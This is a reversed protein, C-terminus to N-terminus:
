CPAEVSLELSFTVAGKGARNVALTFSSRSYFLGDREDDYVHRYQMLYLSPSTSLFTKAAPNGQFQLLLLARQQESLLMPLGYLNTPGSLEGTALVSIARQLQSTM